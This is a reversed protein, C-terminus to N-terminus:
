KILARLVCLCVYVCVGKTLYQAHTRQSGLCVVVVCVFFIQVLILGFDFNVFM